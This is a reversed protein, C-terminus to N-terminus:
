TGAPRAVAAASPPSAKDGVEAWTCRVQRGATPEHGDQNAQVLSKRLAAMLRIMSVPRRDKHWPQGNMRVLFQRPSFPVRILQIKLNKNRRFNQSDLERGPPRQAQDNCKM